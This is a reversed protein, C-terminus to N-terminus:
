GIDLVPAGSINKCEVDYWAPWMTLDDTCGNGLSSINSISTQYSFISSKEGIMISAVNIPTMGLAELKANQDYVESAYM